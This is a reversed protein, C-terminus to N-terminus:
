IKVHSSNLRTSKRDRGDTNASSLKRGALDFVEILHINVESNLHLIDSVPNPFAKFLVNNFDSVALPSVTTSTTNTIIPADFDSFIPLADHLSLPYLVP